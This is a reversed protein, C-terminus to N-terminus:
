IPSLGRGRSRRDASRFHACILESLDRLGIVRGDGAEFYDTWKTLAAHPNHEEGLIGNQLPLDRELDHLRFEGGVWFSHVPEPALSACHRGNPMVVNHGDM